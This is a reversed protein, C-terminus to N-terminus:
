AVVEQVGRRYLVRFAVAAVVATAALVITALATAYGFDQSQFAIAYVYTAAVETSNIPGGETMVYVWTFAHMSEIIWLIALSRLVPYLQPLTVWMFEQAANAGDVKAAEIVEPHIRELGAGILVVWLGISHWVAAILVATMATSTDGLWQRALGDLHLAHLTQNLLGWNPNYIFKWILSVVLSSMVVPAFVLVRFLRRFRKAQSLCWALYLGPVFLLV